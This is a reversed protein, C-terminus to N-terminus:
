QEKLHTAPDDLRIATTATEDFSRVCGHAARAGPVAATSTPSM